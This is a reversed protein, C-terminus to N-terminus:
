CALVQEAVNNALGTSGERLHQKNEQSLHYTLLVITLVAMALCSFLALM